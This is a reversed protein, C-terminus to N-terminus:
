DFQSTIHLIKIFIFYFDFLIINNDALLTALFEERLLGEGLVLLLLVVLSLEGAVIASFINNAHSLKNIVFSLMLFKVAGDTALADNGLVPDPVELGALPGLLVLLHLSDLFAVVLAAAVLGPPLCVEVPVLLGMLLVGAAERVAVVDGVSLPLEDGVLLLDVLHLTEGEMLAAPAVEAAAVLAIDLPVLQDTLFPLALLGGEVDLGDALVLEAKEEGLCAGGGDGVEVHDQVEEDLPKALLEELLSGLPGDCLVTVTKLMQM